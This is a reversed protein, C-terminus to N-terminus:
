EYLEAVNVAVGEMKVLCDDDTLKHKFGLEVMIMEVIPVSPTKNRVSVSLHRIMQGTDAPEVTYVVKVGVPIVCCFEPRDGPAREFGNKIALLQDMTAPHQEAYQRLRQLEKKMNDDLLLAQM